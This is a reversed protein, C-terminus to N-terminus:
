VHRVLEYRPLFPNEDWLLTGTFDCLEKRSWLDRFTMTHNWLFWKQATHSGQRFMGPRKHEITKNFNVSTEALINCCCLLLCASNGGQQFFTLLLSLFKPVLSCFHTYMEDSLITLYLSSWSLRLVIEQWVDWRLGATESRFTREGHVPARFGEHRRGVKLGRVCAWLSSWVTWSSAVVM